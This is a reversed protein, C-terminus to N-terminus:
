AAVTAMADEEVALVMTKYIDVDWGDGIRMRLTDGGEKLLRGRLPVKIDGLAVQLVVAHGIWTAFASHMGGGPPPDQRLLSHRAASRPGITCRPCLALLFTSNRFNAGRFPPICTSTCGYQKEPVRSGNAAEAAVPMRTPHRVRVFGAREFPCYRGGPWPYAKRQSAAKRPAKRVQSHQLHQFLIVNGNGADRSRTNAANQARRIGAARRQRADYGSAAGQTQAVNRAPANRPQPEGAIMAQSVQDLANKLRPLELIQLDRHRHHGRVEVAALRHYQRVAVQDVGDARAACKRTQKLRHFDARPAERVPSQYRRHRSTSCPVQPCRKDQAHGDAYLITIASSGAVDELHDAARHRRRLFM